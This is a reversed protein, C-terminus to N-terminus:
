KAVVVKAHRLVRDGLIYGAQFEEIITDTEADPNDVLTIAEHFNVDMKKGIVDIKSVGKESLWKFLNKQLLEVGDVYPRAEETKELVEPAHDVIRNVDDIVPLLEKITKELARSGAVQAEREKQRRFNEFDAAKRMLEDKLKEAQLKSENLADELVKVKATLEESQGAAEKTAVTEEHKITENHEAKHKAAKKTM